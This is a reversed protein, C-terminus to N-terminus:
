IDLRTKLNFLSSCRAAQMVYVVALLVAFPATAAASPAAASATSAMGLAAHSCSLIACTACGEGPCDHDTDNAIVLCSVLAMFAIAVAAAVLVARQAACARSKSPSM